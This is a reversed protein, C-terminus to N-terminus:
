LIEVFMKSMSLECVLGSPDRSLAEPHVPSLVDGNVPHAIVM